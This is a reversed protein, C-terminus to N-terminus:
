YGLYSGVIIVTFDSLSPKRRLIQYVRCIRTTAECDECLGSKVCPNTKELRKNNMPSAYCEIRAMAEDMDRVIKNVGVVVVTKAPGFTLAAVRNGNGDVNVIDGELTVANSGSVFVDCTLQKRLTELKQEASIGPANHDLVVAGLDKAREQIALAKITMSGGFGVSKGKAIFAMVKSVAEDPTEVYVADFGNKSLAKAAAEGLTTDHWADVTPTPNM